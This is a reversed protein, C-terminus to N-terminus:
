CRVYRSESSCEGFASNLGCALAPGVFPQTSKVEDCVCACVGVRGQQAASACECLGPIARQGMVEAMM